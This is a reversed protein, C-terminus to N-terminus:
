RTQGIMPRDDSEGASIPAVGPSVALTLIMTVFSAGFAVTRVLNLRNWEAEFAARAATVGAPPRSTVAALEENLPVSGVATVLLGALYAALAGVLLARVTTTAPAWNAAIAVAIAPISGFFVLAFAPNRITDNIAQFTEVYAPDDVRALGATVSAAYTFFFGASLGTLATAAALAVRGLRHGFRDVPAPQRHTRIM